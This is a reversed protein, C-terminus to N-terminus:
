CLTLVCCGPAPAGTWVRPFLTLHRPASRRACTPTRRARTARCCWRPSARRTRRPRRRGSSRSSGRVSTNVGDAATFDPKVRVAEAPFFVRRPGDSTFREPTTGRHLVGPVAGVPEASRGARARNPRPGAAPAAAISFAAAAASHGRTVGPTVWAPLGGAAEFRGRLASLQFYKPTGAFRVVALRLGTGGFTPTFLLEYPDDDGDQVDQAFDVINGAGDFLYLDYDDAAAGLQNAWFLTVPVGNDSDPSIPEFVQVAEGPDFDHAEGAFKGVSRGSGRFAGEYNGSTGDLM